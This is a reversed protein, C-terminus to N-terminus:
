KISELIWRQHPQLPGIFDSPVVERKPGVFGPMDEYHVPGQYQPKEKEEM